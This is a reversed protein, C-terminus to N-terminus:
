GDVAADIADTWAADSPQVSIRTAGDSASAAVASRSPQPRVEEPRVPEAGGQPGSSTCAGLLIVTALLSPSLARTRIRHMSSTVGGPRPAYRHAMAAALTRMM